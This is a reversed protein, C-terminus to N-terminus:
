YSFNPIITSLCYEEENELIEVDSSDQDLAATCEYFFSAIIKQKPSLGTVSNLMRNKTRAKIKSAPDTDVYSVLIEVCPQVEGDVITFMEYVEPKLGLTKMETSVYQSFVAAIDSLKARGTTTCFDEPLQIKCCMGKTTEKKRRGM